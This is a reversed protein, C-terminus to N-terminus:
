KSLNKISNCHHETHNLTFYLIEKLTVLGIYPLPLQINDMQSDDLKKSVSLLISSQEKFIRIISDKDALRAIQFKERLLEIQSGTLNYFDSIKNQESTYHLRSYNLSESETKPVFPPFAKWKGNSVAKEYDKLFIILSRSERNSHGWRETILPLQSLSNNIPVISLSLHQIEEAISWKELKKKRFFFDNEMNDLIHLVESFVRELKEFLEKSEM